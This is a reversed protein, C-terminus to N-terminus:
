SSNMRARFSRPTRSASYQSMPLPVLNFGLRLLYFLLLKRSYFNFEVLVVTRKLVVEAIDIFFPIRRM